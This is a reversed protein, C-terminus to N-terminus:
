EDEKYGCSKAFKRLFIDTRSWANTLEIIMTVVRGLEFPPTSSAVRPPTVVAEKPKHAERLREVVARAVYSQKGNKMPTIDNDKLFKYYTSVNVGAAAAAEEPRFLDKSSPLPSLAKRIKTNKERTGRSQRRVRNAMVERAEDLPTTVNWNHPIAPNNSPMKEAKLGGRRIMDLIAKPTEGIADALETPTM